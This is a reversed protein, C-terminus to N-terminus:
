IKKNVYERLATRGPAEQVEPNNPKPIYWGLDIEYEECVRFIKDVFNQDFGDQNIIRSDLLPWYFDGTEGNDQALMALMFLSLNKSYRSTSKRTTYSQKQKEVLDKALESIEKTNFFDSPIKDGILKKYYKKDGDTALIKQIFISPLFCKNHLNNDIAGVCVKMSKM